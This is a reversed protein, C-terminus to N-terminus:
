LTGFPVTMSVARLEADTFELIRYYTMGGMVIREIKGETRLEALINAILDVRMKFHSDIESEDIMPNERIFDTIADTLWQNESVRGILIKKTEM